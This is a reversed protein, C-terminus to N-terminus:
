VHRAGELPGFRGSICELIALSWLSWESRRHHLLYEENKNREFYGQINLTGPQQRIMAFIAVQIQAFTSVPSRASGGTESLLRQHSELV